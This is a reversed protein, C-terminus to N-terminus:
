FRVRYQIELSSAKHQMTRFEILYESPRAGHQLITVCDSATDLKCRLMSEVTSIETEVAYPKGVAPLLSGALGLVRSELNMSAIKMLQDPFRQVYNVDWLQSVNQLKISSVIRHCENIIVLNIRQMPLTALELALLAEDVTTVVIQHALTSAAEAVSYCTLRRISEAHRAVLRQSPVLYLVVSNESGHNIFHEIVKCCIFKKGQANILSVITNGQCATEFLEVQPEKPTFSKTLILDAYHHAM